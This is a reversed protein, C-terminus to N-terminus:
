IGKRSQQGSFVIMRSSACFDMGWGTPHLFDWVVKELSFKLFDRVEPVLIFERAESSMSVKKNCLSKM